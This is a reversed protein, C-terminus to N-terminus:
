IKSAHQAIFKRWVEIAKERERVTETANIDARLKRAEVGYKVRCIKSCDCPSTLLASKNACGKVSLKGNTESM